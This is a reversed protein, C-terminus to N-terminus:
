PLARLYVAGGGTAVHLTPPSVMRDVEVDLIRESPLGSLRTSSRTAPDYLVVGTTYGALAVRGDPLCDVDKVTSEGLGLATASFTEFSRGRWVSVTHGDGNAPGRSSFWARGDPCVTVGTLYVSDGEANVKFVPENTFGEDNPPLPYPDGFAHKFARGHRFVWTMPDADWTILGATWRGAHWVDGNADIALGAWDGMRQGAESGEPCPGPSCVRAHLHDGMWEVNAADFWEGPRPYRFKDPFLINVGHNTGVYLTGPHAFHDYAVSQVTRNHWYEAGHRGAVFDFRDVDLTGDAALRVRDMKGSHRNPDCYDGAGELLTPDKPPCTMGAPKEDIGFYGVFVEDPGGGVIKSIGPPAAEGLGLEGRCTEGPQMPRFDCYRAPNGPLHLGDAADFRTFTTEGPRLVYLAQHTAVWRNQAEDTTVGVVPSELIGAARGYVANEVAWPGQTGFEIRQSPTPPPEGPPPTVVPDDPVTPEGGQDGGGGGCATAVLAFAGALLLLRGRDM